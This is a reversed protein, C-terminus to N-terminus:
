GKNLMQIERLKKILKEKEGSGNTEFRLLPLGIKELIKDKIRDRKEQQTGEKHYNYGDVEIAVVPNKGLKNYILFDFHEIAISLEKLFNSRQTKSVYFRTSFLLYKNM